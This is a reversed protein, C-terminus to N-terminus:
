FQFSLGGLFNIGQVPYSYSYQYDQNLVNNFRAFISVGKFLNYTAGLSLNNVPNLKINQPDAETLSYLRVSNRAVYQYGANITLEPLVKVDTNFQIDFKPKMLM